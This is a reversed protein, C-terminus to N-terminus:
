DGVTKSSQDTQSLQDYNQPVHARVSIADIRQWSTHNKAKECFQPKSNQVQVYHKMATHKGRM